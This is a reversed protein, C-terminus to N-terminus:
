GTMSNSFTTATLRRQQDIQDQYFPRRRSGGKRGHAAERSSTRVFGDGSGLLGQGGREQLFLETREDSLGDAVVDAASTADGEAPSM